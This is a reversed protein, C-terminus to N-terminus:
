VASTAVEDVLAVGTEFTANGDSLVAVYYTTGDHEVVGVSTVDWLGTASRQLYGVKVAATAPDDDASSAGFRQTDIVTSMLGSLTSRGEDSLVGDEGLAADLLRVQDAATTQTLGWVSSVDTDTLGISVNFADLADAGGVEALLATAAANDSSRIMASALSQQSATLEGDQQALLAALIDVKVVSATDFTDTDGYTFTEGTSTDFVAVSWRADTSIADLTSTDPVPVSAEVTAAVPVVEAAAISSTTAGVAASDHQWAVTGGTALAVAIGAAM